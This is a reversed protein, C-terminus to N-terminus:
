LTFGALTAADAAAPVELAFPTGQADAVRITLTGNVGGTAAPPTVNLIVLVGATGTQSAQNSYIGLGQDYAVLSAGGLAQTLQVGALPLDDRAFELIIHSLGPQIFAATPLSSAIGDLVTRDIVPLAAKASPVKQLSFTSYIGTGGNTEDHVFLFQSGGVLNDLVFGTAPNEYPVTAVGGGASPGSITAKGSYATSQDFSATTLVAVAGSVSGPVGSQGGGGGAGGDSNGPITGGIVSGCRDGTKCTTSPGLTESSSQCAVVALSLGLARILQM